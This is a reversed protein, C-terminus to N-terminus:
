PATGPGDDSLIPLNIAGPVAGQLFEVPARVDIFPTDVQFLRSLDDQYVSM